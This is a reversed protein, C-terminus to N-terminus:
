ASLERHIEFYLRVGEDCELLRYRDVGAPDDLRQSRWVPVDQLRQLLAYDFTGLMWTLLRNLGPIRVATQTYRAFLWVHDDDIPTAVVAFRALGEFSLVALTPAVIHTTAHMHGRDGPRGLTGQVVVRLGERHASFATVEAPVPATHRHVHAVHHFDTLNEMVRLYSVDFTDSLDLFAGGEGTLEDQIADTWPIEGPAGSGHFVWILGRAQVSPLLRLDLGSPVPATPAAPVHVCAGDPDFRLGHYPCTLCGDVVRGRSLAAGRHPCADVAVSVTGDSGRWLVLDRGFRKVSVPKAKVAREDLVAYWQDRLM